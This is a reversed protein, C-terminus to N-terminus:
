NRRAVKRGALKRRTPAGESEAITPVPRCILPAAGGGEGVGKPVEVRCTGTPVTVLLSLDGSATNFEVMGDFGVLSERGSPSATVTLGAELPAGAPDTVQLLVPRFYLADIDVVGVARSPVSVVHRSSLVVADEPLKTEDVDIHQPIAPQLDQVLLRGRRDTKGVFRNELKVPVGEVDGARVLVYSSSSKSRAYMSGGTAILSGTASMQGAIQGATAVLGGNLTTWRGEHIASATLQATRNLMGVTGQARLGSNQYDEFQYGLTATTQGNGESAAVSVSHRPGLRVSLGAAVFFSRQGAQRMGGNVTFNVGSRPSFHLNASLVESRFADRPDRAYRRPEQRVYSLQFPMGRRLDFGINAFIQQGPANDGLHSAVDRYGPTPLAAGARASFGRGMSELAFNLLAGSGAGSDRSTRLEVTSFAINGITFDARSGLNLLGGTSEASTELTLFPSLGRRYYASAALPGYNDGDIGYRRRVYGANVAWSELGPQLLTASKYFNIKRVVERGLSDKLLVEMSGRGLNTPINRITFEGPELKGLQYRQGAALIDLSTPVAVSGSFAPMPSTVMDPRHSYDSALQIGGMRVPRQSASGASIFDGATAIAGSRPLRLQVFSDLRRLKLPAGLDGRAVQATTVAAFDGKAVAGSFLGGAQVGSRTATLSLDYDLRVAAITRRAGLEDNRKAFDRFNPGDNKRLLKVVLRQRLSDFRWQYLKLTDFRLQGVAGEPVPLGAARAAEADISLGSGFGHLNVLRAYVRGDIELESLGPGAAPAQVTETTASPPLAFPDTTQANAVSGTLAAAGTVFALLGDVARRSLSQM